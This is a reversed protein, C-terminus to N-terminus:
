VLEGKKIKQVESLRYRRKGGVPIHQLYGEGQWRWLTTMTVNLMEATEKRSLYQEEPETKEYQEYLETAVTRFTQLLDM